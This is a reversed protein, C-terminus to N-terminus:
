ESRSQRLFGGVVTAVLAPSSTWSGALFAPNVVLGLALSVVLVVALALSVFLLIRSQFTNERVRATHAEVWEAYLDGWCATNETEAEFRERWASEMPSERFADEHHGADIGAFGAIAKPLEEQESRGDGGEKEHSVDGLVDFSQTQEKM